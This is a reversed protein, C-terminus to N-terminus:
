WDAANGLALEQWTGAAFMLVVERAASGAVTRDAVLLPWQGSADISLSAVDEMQGYSYDPGGLESHTRIGIVCQLANPLCWDLIAVRGGGSDNAIGHDWRDSHDLNTDGGLRFRYVTPTGNETSVFLSRGDASWGGVGISRTGSYTLVRGTKVDQVAVDRSGCGDTHVSYAIRSGDPSVAARFGGPAIKRRAGGALPMLYMGNIGPDCGSTVGFFVRGHPRDVTIWDVSADPPLTTLMHRIAPDGTAIAVITPGVAVIVDEPM